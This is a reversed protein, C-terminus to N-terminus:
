FCRECRANILCQVLQMAVGGGRQEDVFKVAIEKPDTTELGAELKAKCAGNAQPSICDLGFATGCYCDKGSGGTVCRSKIVCDLSEACLDSKARGKAPGNEAAGQIKLCEDVRQKCRAEACMLCEPSNYGLIPALHGAAASLQSPIPPTGQSPTDTEPRSCRTCGVYFVVVMFM